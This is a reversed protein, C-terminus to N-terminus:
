RSLNSIGSSSSSEKKVENLWCSYQGSSSKRSASIRKRMLCCGIAIQFHLSLCFLGAASVSKSYYSSAHANNFFRRQFSLIFGRFGSFFLRTSFFHRTSLTHRDAIPINIGKEARSKCHHHRCIRDFLGAAKERWPSAIAPM